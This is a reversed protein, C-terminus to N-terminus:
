NLAFKEWTDITLEMDLLIHINLSFYRHMYQSIDSSYKGQDLWYAFNHIIEKSLLDSLTKIDNNYTEKNPDNMQWRLTVQYM